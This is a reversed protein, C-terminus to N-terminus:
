FLIHYLRHGLYGALLMSKEKQGQPAFSFDMQKDDEQPDTLM